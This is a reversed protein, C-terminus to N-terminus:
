RRYKKMKGKESENVVSKKKIDRRGECKSIDNELSRGIKGLVKM